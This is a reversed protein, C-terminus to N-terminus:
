GTLIQVIREAAKGDWYKPIKKSAIGKNLVRLATKRIKDPNNGVV